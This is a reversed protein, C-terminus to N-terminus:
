QCYTKNSCATVIQKVIKAVCEETEMFRIPQTINSSNSEHKTYVKIGMM